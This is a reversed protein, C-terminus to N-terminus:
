ASQRYAAVCSVVGNSWRERTAQDRFEIIPVYKIKGRDDVRAAAGDMQPKSPPQAWQSDGKSHIAIDHIVLGSDFEVSAFGALTNRPVDRFALCRM